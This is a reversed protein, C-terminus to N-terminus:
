SGSGDGLFFAGPWGGAACIASEIETTVERTRKLARIIEILRKVDAAELPIAPQPSRGGTAKRGKLWKQLVPYGGIRLAWLEESVGRFGSTRDKDLWVSNDHWHPRVVTTPLSGVYCVSEDDVPADLLHCEVLSRGLEILREFLERGAPVPIRPFGSRLYEGYRDRYGDSYLVAYCYELINEPTYGEPVGHNGARVDIGACFMRLHKQDLNPAARDVLALEGQAGGDDALYLPFVTCSRTSEGTKMEVLHRTVFAADNAGAAQLRASVLAINPHLLHRLTPYKADGKEIIEPNYYIWRDDFPRYTVRRVFQEIDAAAVTKRADEFSWHKTDKIGYKRRVMELDSNTAIDTFRAIVENRSFGILVADRHTKVGCSHVPFLENLSPFRQYEDLHTKDFPIFFYKPEIPELKARALASVTGSLLADYKEGRTGWVDRHAVESLSTSTGQSASACVTISVGQQIDFVNENSMGSPPKEGVNSDGHLDVIFLKDFQTLLEQRVGRHIVGKLFGHNTVMGWLGCGSQGLFYQSVRIFKLYDDSLAVLGQEGRVHKKYDNMLADIFPNSNASTVSYPPNGMVVTFRGQEKVRNVAEAEAALAPLSLSLQENGGHPRELANTLYIRARREEEFRYGTEHLKLGIKLHAIAYPAMLLEFAHLRDLLGCGAWDGRGAVYDNWLRLRAQETQSAWERTMTRHIVDIAEVLFTGTGTAPDLISVFPSNPDAGDPISIEHNAAVEKWTSWDALGLRLRFESRLLDDISRVINSVIPRPTYYVGRQVRQASDYAALFDEFFHIVPDKGAHEDESNFDFVHSVDVRELLSAIDDIMWLYLGGDSQRRIRDIGAFFGKLFPNTAPISTLADSVTFPGHKNTDATRQAWRATLLGNTVTQAFADSFAGEDLDHVLGSQFAEYLSRLPGNERELRLQRLSLARLYKARKALREALDKPNRISAQSVLFFRSLLSLVKGVGEFQTNERTLRGKLQETGHWLEIVADGREPYVILVNDFSNFSGLRARVRQAEASSDACYVVYGLVRAESDRVVLGQLPNSHDGREIDEPNSAIFHDDRLTEFLLQNRRRGYSAGVERLLAEIAATIGSQSPADTACADLLRSAKRRHEGTVFADQWREGRSLPFIHRTYFIEFHERAISPDWDRAAEYLAFAEFSATEMCVAGFALVQRRRDPLGERVSVVFLTDERTGQPMDATRRSGGRAFWNLGDAVLRFLEDELLGLERISRRPSTALLSSAESGLRVLVIHFPRQATKRWYYAGPEYLEALKQRDSESATLLVRDLPEQQGEGFCQVLVQRALDGDSSDATLAHNEFTDFGAIMSAPESTVSSAGNMLIQVFDEKKLM